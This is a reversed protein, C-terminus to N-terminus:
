EYKMDTGLGITTAMLPATAPMPTGITRPASMRNMFSFATMVVDNEWRPRTASNPSDHSSVRKTPGEWARSRSYVARLTLTM